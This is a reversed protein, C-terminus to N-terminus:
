LALGGALASDLVDVGLALRPSDIYGELRAVDRRLQHFHSRRGDALHGASYGASHGSCAGSDGDLSGTDNNEFHQNENSFYGEEAQSAPIEIRDSITAM